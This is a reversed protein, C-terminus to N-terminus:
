DPILTILRPFDTGTDIQWVTRVLLERGVPTSLDAAIEYRIGYATQKVIDVDTPLHYNRIDTELQQWNEQSYGCQILLKAKTGGRKHEPNLLYDTLKSPEIIARDSNPIKMLQSKKIIRESKVNALLAV